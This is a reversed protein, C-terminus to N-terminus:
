PIIISGGTGYLQSTSGSAAMTCTGTSQLYETVNSTIQNYGMTALANLIKSVDSYSSLNNINVNVSMGTVLRVSTNDIWGSQMVVIIGSPMKFVYYEYADLSSPYLTPGNPLGLLIPYVQNQLNQINAYQSAVKYDAKIILKANIYEPQLVTPANTKFIYTDGVFLCLNFNLLPGKTAVVSAPQIGATSGLGLLPSTTAM